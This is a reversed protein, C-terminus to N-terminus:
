SYVDGNSQIKTEEYKAAVRRYFELAACLFAGMIICITLFTKGHKKLFQVAHYTLLWTLEGANDPSHLGNLIEMKQKDEIYPM